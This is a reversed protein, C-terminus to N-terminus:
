RKGLGVVQQVAEFMEDDRTKPSPNDRSYDVMDAIWDRRLDISLYLLPFGINIIEDNWYKNFMPIFNRWTWGM